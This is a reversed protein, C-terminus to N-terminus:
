LGRVASKNQENTTQQSNPEVIPRTRYDWGVGGRLESAGSIENNIGSCQNDAHEQKLRSSYDTQTQKHQPTTMDSLWHLLFSDELM